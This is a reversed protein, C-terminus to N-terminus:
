NEQILLVIPLISLILNLYLFIVLPKVLPLDQLYVNEPPVAGNEVNVIITNM